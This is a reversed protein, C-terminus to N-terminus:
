LHVLTGDVRLTLIGEAGELTATVRAEDNILISVDTNTLWLGHM